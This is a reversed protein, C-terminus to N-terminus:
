ASLAVKAMTDVKGLPTAAVVLRGNGACSTAAGEGGGIGVTAACAGCTCAHACQTGHNCFVFRQQPLRQQGQQGLHARLQLDDAVAFVAGTRQFDDGRLLRVHRKQIAAHGAEGPDLHRTRHALDARAALHHEDSGVVLVGDVREFVTRHIVQEFGDAVLAQLSGPLAHLM